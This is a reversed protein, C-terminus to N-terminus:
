EARLASVPNLRIARRAPIYSALIATTLLALAAGAFVEPEAMSVPSDLAGALVRAIGLAAAIGAALGALTMALGKGLVLSLVQHQQAGLAMRIGIEQTRQNVSFSMVGYIGVAALLVAVVGFLTFMTAIIRFAAIASDMHQQPTGGFYPPLNEDVRAIERRLARPLEELAAAVTREFTERNM